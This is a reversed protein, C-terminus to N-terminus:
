KGESVIPLFSKKVVKNSGFTFGYTEELKMIIAPYQMVWVCAASSESVVWSFFLIKSPMIPNQVEFEAWALHM